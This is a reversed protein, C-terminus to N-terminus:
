GDCPSTGHDFFTDSSDKSYWTMGIKVAEENKIYYQEGILCCDAKLARRGSATLVKITRQLM